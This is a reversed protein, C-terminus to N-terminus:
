VWKRGDWKISLDSVNQFVFPEFFVALRAITESLDVYNNIGNRSIFATWRENVLKDLVFEDTLAIPLSGPLQTNRREFTSDIAKQLLAGDFEFEEIMYRLDWFDKMRGNLMGFRVMAEYKEAVVTEKPYVKLTPSPLDLLAPFEANEPGPTVADGTGIDIQIPIRINGLRATFKVRVGQYALDERIEEGTISETDFQLGDAYEISCIDKITQEIAPIDNNGYGLLDIDKTPRHPQDFWLTFLAAGKLLFRDAHPSISLRYLFRECGYRVLVSQFEEGHEKAHNRLRDAISRAIDKTENAM